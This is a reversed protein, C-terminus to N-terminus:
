EDKLDGTLLLQEAYKENTMKSGMERAKSVFDRQQKSLRNALNKKSDRSESPATNEFTMAAKKQNSNEFRHPFKARIEAEIEKIGDSESTNPATENLYEIVKKALVKIRHSEQDTGNIWSANRKAFEAGEKSPEVVPPIAKPIEIQKLEEQAIAMKQEISMVRNADGNNIADLKANNLTKLKDEAALKALKANRELAQRNFELLEDIKKNQAEIKRFFSGDKEYQEESKWESEKRGAKVWEEKTIHGSKTNKSVLMSDTDKSVEEETAIEAEHTAEKAVDEKPEEKKTEKHKEAIRAKEAAVEAKFDAIINDDNVVSNSM